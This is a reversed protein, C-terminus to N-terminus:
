VRRAVILTIDDAPPSGAAFETLAQNVAAVIEAASKQRNATLVEAFREDGFEEEKANNAETVGDSYIALADGRELKARYESYNAISLIGLVPGGGDLYEVAGNARVIVPPNHGANCYALEGTSPDLVCFFFTIFRNSPCSQCTIKNLRNIVAALDRPEDALVQVRAQLGMMMLSAPMGKGSVDGLVMAVRGNPYTFFDYYDGGVTRCPANYGALDAGAVQPAPGPLAGRQIEAAQELDRAMRREMEEVESLRAHEIRIAAVNAMVTLLSLDDKTFARFMNPSDVYILGITRKETQLPVAMMTRVKQEVISMRERFAEDLQADRVLVSAKENIVRDRVASSIRFGEGKNAKVELREGDLIMVVGRQAGVGEIALDLILPFLDALTGRGALEQGARILAQVQKTGHQGPRDVITQNSLAGELSTFITSTSPPDPEGTEFVVVGQAPPAGAGKDDFVIALHGATIRDGPKLKLKARLPINNVLTGNKSGLDQVTWDDGDCELVMHQRSLGADDPFCLEAISSRGVTFRGGQLPVTKIQGDPCQIVIERQM